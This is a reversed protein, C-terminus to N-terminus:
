KFRQQLAAQMCIDVARASSCFKIPLTENNFLHLKSMQNAVGKIATISFYSTDMNNVASRKIM